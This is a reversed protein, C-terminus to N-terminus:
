LEWHQYLRSYEERLAEVKDSKGQQLLCDRLELFINLTTSDDAGWEASAIQVAARYYRESTDHNKVHRYFRGLFAASLAIWGLSDSDEAIDYCRLLHEEAEEDKDQHSALKGSAYAIRCQMDTNEFTQEFTQAAYAIDTLLADASHFEELATLFEVVKLKYRYLELPKENLGSDAGELSLQLLKSNLHRFDTQKVFLRLVFAVPHNYGYIHASLKTLYQLLMTRVIQHGNWDGINFENSVQWILQFPQQQLLTVAEDCAKNLMKFAVKPTVSLQVRGPKFSSIVKDLAPTYDIAQLAISQDLYWDWYQKMNLLILEANYSEPSQRLLFKTITSTDGSPQPKRYPAVERFHGSAARSTASSGTNCSAQNRFDSDITGFPAALRVARGGRQVQRKVRALALPKGNVVGDQLQDVDFKLIAKKQDQSYYKRIGWRALRKKYMQIEANFGHKEKMITQVGELTLGRDQYLKIITAQHREWQSAPISKTRVAETSKRRPAQALRRHQTAGQTVDEQLAITESHGSFSLSAGDVTGQGQSRDENIEEVHGIPQKLTSKGSDLSPSPIQRRTRRGHSDINRKNDM